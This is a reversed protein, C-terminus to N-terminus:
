ELLLEKIIEKSKILLLWKEINEIANAINKTLLRGTKDFVYANAVSKDARTYQFGEIKFRLDPFLKFNDKNIGVGELLTHGVNIFQEWKGLHELKQEIDELPTGNDSTM